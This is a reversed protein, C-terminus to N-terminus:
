SRGTLLDVVWCGRVHSGPQRCHGLIDADHCGADELADALIPMRDFARNGYITQALKVVTGANWALWAPEVTVPRFPLPGFMDRLLDSQGKREAWAKSQRPPAAMVWDVVGDRSTASADVADRWRDDAFLAAACRGAMIAGAIADTDTVHICAAAGWIADGPKGDWADVSDSHADPLATENWEDDAYSEAVEVAKLSLSEDLFDWIRRCCAVSFLRAKRSSVKKELFALMRDPDTCALWDAETM